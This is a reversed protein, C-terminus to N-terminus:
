ITKEIRKVLEKAKDKSDVETFMDSNLDGYLEVFTDQYNLLFYYAFIAFNHYVTQLVYESELGCIVYDGDFGIFQIDQGNYMINRRAIDLYYIGCDNLEEISRYCKLIITIREKLSFDNSENIKHYGYHYPLIMGCPINEMNILGLPLKSYKIIEQKSNLYEMQRIDIKGYKKSNKLFEEQSLGNLMDYYLSRSIKILTDNYLIVIGYEGENIYKSNLLLNYFEIFSYNNNLM